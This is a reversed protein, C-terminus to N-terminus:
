PRWEEVVVEIAPELAYRKRAILDVVQADDRYAVGNLADAIAKAYNDTDPKATPAILGRAAAERRARSWSSPIPLLARVTLVVAGQLPAAGRLASRAFIKADDQYAVLPWANFFRRSRGDHRARSWAVPARPIRFELRRPRPETM